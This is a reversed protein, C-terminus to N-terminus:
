GVIKELFTAWLKSCLILNKVSVAENAQHACSIDEPSHAFSPIGKEVLLKAVTNGGMTRLKLDINAEEFAEKFKKVWVTNPDIFHPSTENIVELKFKGKPLHSSITNLIEEKTFPPPYRIDITAEAYSPVMNPSDGGKIEGLNLTSSTFFPNDSPFSLKQLKKLADILKWIANIGKQPESGHTSKGYSKLVVWLLGKEGIIAEDMKGGDPIFCFDAKFGENLLLKVGKESGREEDAVAGLIIKGKIKKNKLLLRKVAGWAAAFPGKNDVAGRGYLKGEKIVPQFPDTDWGEGPPVVDMHALIGIVPKGEGIEGLINPRREEGYIRIKAGLDKLAKVVVEKTLYENGPPNITPIRILEKALEIIQIDLERV